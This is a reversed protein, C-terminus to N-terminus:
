KAPIAKIFDDVSHSFRDADDVFLAHAADECVDVRMNAPVQLQSLFNKSDTTIANYIPCNIKPLLPRYDRGLMNAILTVATNTPTKLSDEVVKDFYADSQPKKYMSRVFRTTAGRRDMQQRIMMGSIAKYFELSPDLGIFGDVLVLGRVNDTGFQEVYSMIEPVGMSWGVLVVPSLKLADVLEKYDKSRREPYNGDAPKDSDGQSRPDVAVVHYHASFYDIQKRWIEASMTWGPIFLIAPGQGAELYHLKVGDTTTFTGNKESPSASAAMALLLIPLLFTARRM